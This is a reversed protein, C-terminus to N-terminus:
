GARGGTAPDEPRAALVEEQPAQEQGEQRSEDIFGRVLTKEARPLNVFEAGHEISGDHGPKSWAVLARLPVDVPYYDLIVRILTERPFERVAEFRLGGSSIDLLQIPHAEQQNELLLTGQIPFRPSERRDEGKPQAM